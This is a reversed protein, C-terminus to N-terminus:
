RAFFLKEAAEEDGDLWLDIIRQYKEPTKNYMRITSGSSWENLYKERIITTKLGDGFLIYNDCLSGCFEIIGGNSFNDTKEAYRNILNDVAKYSYTTM